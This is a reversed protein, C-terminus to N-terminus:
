CYKWDQQRRCQVPCVQMFEVPGVAGFFNHDTTNLRQTPWGVSGPFRACTYSDHQVSDDRAWVRWVHRSLLDQDAGKGRSDTFVQKDGLMRSWSNRWHERRVETDLRSDWGGGMIPVGHWPHDRMVHLTKNSELWEGVAAAERATLRSDLDRSMVLEVQPDLTPFFRWMM